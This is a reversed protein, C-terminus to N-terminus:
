WSKACICGGTSWGHEVMVGMVLRVSELFYHSFSQSCSSGVQFINESDSNSQLGSSLEQCLSAGLAGNEVGTRSGPEKCGICGFDTTWVHHGLRAM